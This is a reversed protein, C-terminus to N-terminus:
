PRGSKSAPPRGAIAAFAKTGSPQVRVYHGTLEPDPHAYREARPKLAEVGKDTLTKRMILNSGALADALM